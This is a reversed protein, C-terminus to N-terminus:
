ISRSIWHPDVVFADTFGVNELSFVLYDCFCRKRHWVRREWGHNKSRVGFLCCDSCQYTACPNYNLADQSICGVIEIGECAIECEIINVDNPCCGCDNMAGNWDCEELDCDRCDQCEDMVQGEPCTFTDTSDFLDEIDDCSLIILIIIFFISNKKM